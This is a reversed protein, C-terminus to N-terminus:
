LSRARLESETTLVVCDDAQQESGTLRFQQLEKFTELGHQIPSQHERQSIGERNSLLNKKEQARQQSM